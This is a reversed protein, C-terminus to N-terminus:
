IFISCNKGKQKLCKRCSNFSFLSLWCDPVRPVSACPVVASLLQKLTPSHLVTASHCTGALVSFAYSVAESPNFTLGSTLFFFSYLLFVATKRMFVYVYM